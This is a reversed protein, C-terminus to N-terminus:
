FPTKRGTGGGPPVKVAGEGCNGASMVQGRAGRGRISLSNITTVWGFAVCVL